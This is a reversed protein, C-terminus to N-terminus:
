SSSTGSIPLGADARAAARRQVVRKLLRPLVRMALMLLVAGAVIFVRGEVSVVKLPLEQVAGVLWRIQFVLGQVILAVAIIVYIWLFWGYRNQRQGRVLNKLMQWANSRVNWVKLLTCMIFYGDTPMLPWLNNLIMFLNAFAIKLLFQDALESVFGLQRVLLIAGAITANIWSGALWLKIRDRPKLTYVGTIEVYFFLYVGLYLAIAFKRPTLGLRLGVLCHALEHCLSSLTMSLGLIVFGLAYSSGIQLARPAFLVDLPTTLLGALIVVLSLWIAPRFLLNVLPRLRSLSILNVQLLRISLQKFEGQTIRSPPPDVILGAESLSTYLQQVAVDQRLERRAYDRIEALSQRGDFQRALVLTTKFRNEPVTIYRDATLSGIVYQNGGPKEFLVWSQIDAYARPRVDDLSAVPAQAVSEM